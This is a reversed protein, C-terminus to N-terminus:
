GTNNHKRIKLVWIEKCIWYTTSSISGVMRRHKKM